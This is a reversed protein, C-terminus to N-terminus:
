DCTVTCGSWFLRVPPTCCLNVSLPKGDCSTNVSVPVTGAPCPQEEPPPGDLTGIRLNLSVPETLTQRHVTLTGGGPLHLKLRVESGLAWDGRYEYQSVTGKLAPHEPPSIVMTGLVVPSATNSLHELRFAQHGPAKLEVALKGSEIPRLTLVLSTPSESHTSGGAAFVPVFVLLAAM